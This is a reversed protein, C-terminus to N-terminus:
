NQNGGFNKDQIEFIIEMEDIKFQSQENPTIM